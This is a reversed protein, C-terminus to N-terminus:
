RLIISYMTSKFRDWVSMGPKVEFKLVSNPVLYPHTPNGILDHGDYFIDLSALGILPCKFRYSWGYTAYYLIWEVFVLDFSESQNSILKSVEPHSLQQDTLM